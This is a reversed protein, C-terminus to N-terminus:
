SEKAITLNEAYMEKIYCVDATNDNYIIEMLLGGENENDYIEYYFSVRSINEGNIELTKSLGFTLNKPMEYDEYFKSMFEVYRTRFLADEKYIVNKFPTIFFSLNNMVIIGDDKKYIKYNQDSNNSYKIDLIEEAEDIHVINGMIFTPAVYVKEDIVIEILHEYSTLNSLTSPHIAMFDINSNLSKTTLGDSYLLPYESKDFDSFDTQYFYKSDGIDTISYLKLNEEDIYLSTIDTKYLLDYNSTIEKKADNFAKTRSWGNIGDLYNYGSILTILISITSIAIIVGQTGKKDVFHCVIGWFLMCAITAIIFFINQNIAEEIKMGILILVIAIISQAILTYKILNKQM